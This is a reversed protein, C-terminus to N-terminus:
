YRLLLELNGEFDNVLISTTFYENHSRIQQRSDKNNTATLVGWFTGMKFHCSLTIFLWERHSKQSIHM